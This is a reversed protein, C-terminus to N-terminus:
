EKMGSIFLQETRIKIQAEYILTLKMIILILSQQSNSGHKVIEKKDHKKCKWETRM